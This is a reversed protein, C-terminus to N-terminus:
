DLHLGGDIDIIEGTIFGAHPSVLYGVLRAIEAPECYRRVPILNLPQQRQAETLQDTVMPTRIYAPAIANVTVGDLEAALAKSIAPGTGGAAGTVPAPGSARAAGTVM